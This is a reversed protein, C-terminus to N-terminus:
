YLRDLGECFLHGILTHGEQIRATEFSNVSISLDVNSTLPSEKKGIFCAVKLKLFRGVDVVKLINKSAGSTTIVILLDNERGLAQVQRSFVSEYSFDNSHATMLSSDTTLAISALPQRDKKFRVMLEAAMHQADAASGGNGCWLIKGGSDLTNKAMLVLEEIKNIQEFVSKIALDHELKFKEVDNETFM